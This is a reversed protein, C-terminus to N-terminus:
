PNKGKEKTFLSLIFYCIVTLSTGLLFAGLIIQPLPVYHINFVPNCAEGITIATKSSPSMTDWPGHPYIVLSLLLGLITTILISAIMSLSLLKWDIRM